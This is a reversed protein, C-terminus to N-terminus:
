PTVARLSLNHFVAKVPEGGAVAALGYRPSPPPSELDLTAIRQGNVRLEIQNGALRAVLRNTADEGQRIAAPTEDILTATKGTSHQELWLRQSEPRVFFALYNSADSFRLIMGAGGHRVTVDVGILLDDGAPSTRYAWINGIGPDTTITYAGDSASVGWGNGATTPWADGRFEEAYLLRGDEAIPTPTASPTATVDPPALTPAPSLTPAAETPAPSLTPV